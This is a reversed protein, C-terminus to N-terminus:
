SVRAANARFYEILYGSRESLALSVIRANPMKFWFM